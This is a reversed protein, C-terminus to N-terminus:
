LARGGGFSVMVWVMVLVFMVLIVVLFWAPASDPRDPETNGPGPTSDM